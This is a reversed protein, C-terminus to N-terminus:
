IITIVVETRNINSDNIININFKQIVVDNENTDIYFIDNQEIIKKLREESYKKQAEKLKSYVNRCWFYIGM